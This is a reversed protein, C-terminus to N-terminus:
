SKQRRSKRQPGAPEPVSVEEEVVAVPKVASRKKGKKSKKEIAVEEEEVDEDAGIDGLQALISADGKTDMMFSVGEGEEDEEYEGGETGLLDGDGGKRGGAGGRKLINTWHDEDEEEEAAEEADEHAVVADVMVQKRCATNELCKWSGLVLEANATFWKLDVSNLPQAKDIVVLNGTVEGIHERISDATCAGHLSSLLRQFERKERSDPFSQLWQQVLLACMADAAEGRSMDGSRAAINLTRMTFLMLPGCDAPLAVDWRQLKNLWFAVFSVFLLPAATCSISTVLPSSWDISQGNSSQIFRSTIVFANICAVSKPYNEAWSSNMAMRLGLAHSVSRMHEFTIGSLKLLCRCIEHPLANNAFSLYYQLTDPSLESLGDYHKRIIDQASSPGSSLGIMGLKLSTDDVRTKNITANLIKEYFAFNNSIVNKLSADPLRDVAKQLVAAPLVSSAKGDALRKGLSKVFEKALKESDSNDM